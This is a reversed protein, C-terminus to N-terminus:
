YLLIVMGTSFLLFVNRIYFLTLIFPFYNLNDGRYRLFKSTDIFM